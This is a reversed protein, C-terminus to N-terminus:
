LVQCTWFRMKLRNMRGTTNKWVSQTKEMWCLACAREEETIPHPSFWVRQMLTEIEQAPIEAKLFASIQGAIVSPMQNKGATGSLFRVYCLIGACAKRPEMHSFSQLKKRLKRRLIVTRVAFLALLIFLLLFVAFLAQRLYVFRSSLPPEPQVDPTQEPTQEQTPPTTDARNGEQQTPLGSEPLIYKLHDSYGPTPDFPIWGVGDLYFEAWAHANKQTLHLTEGEAMSEAQTPTVTYGEVYRAPIGCCRLMLAALTAYHVSYGCRSVNLVYTAFDQTGSLTVTLENYTINEQLYRTIERTAQVTTTLGATDIKTSLLARVDEPVSLYQEYVWQRYFAEQERYIDTSEAVQEQLLYANSVDFLEASYAQATSTRQGEGTLDASRLVGTELGSVGYPVYATQGCAGVSQVYFSNEPTNQVAEMATGFQTAPFFCNEQLAYLSDAKETLTEGDTREWSSGTYNGATFGRLYLVTWNEMTIDLASGDTPRFAGLDSLDGEPLPNEGQEWLLRHVAKEAQKKLGSSLNLSDTLTLTGLTLSGVLLVSLGAFLMKRGNAGSYLPFSLVTGILFLGMWWDFREWAVTWFLLIVISLIGQVPVKQRLSWGACVGSVGACLLLAVVPSSANAYGPSYVGTRKLYWTGICQWLGAASRGLPEWFLVCLTCLVLLAGIVTRVQWLKEWDVALALAFCLFACAFFPWPQGLSLQATVTGWFGLLLLSGPILATRHEDGSIRNERRPITVRLASAQGNM